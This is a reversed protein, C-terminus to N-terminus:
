SVKPNEMVEIHEDGGDHIVYPDSAVKFKLGCGGECELVNNYDCEYVPTISGCAQCKVHISNCWNCRGGQVISVMDGHMIGYPTGWEIMTLPKDDGPDCIQCTDWTFEYEDIEDGRIIELHIGETKARNQAAKSYNKNTVIIGFHAKVDRLLSTFAEVAKVDVNKNLYKCEVVGLLPMGALEGRISLDIQRKVRSFQGVIHDNKTFVCKKLDDNFKDRFTDFIEQEYAQWKKM